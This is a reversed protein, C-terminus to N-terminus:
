DMVKDRLVFGAAELKARVEGATKADPHSYYRGEDGSVAGDSGTRDQRGTVVVLIAARANQKADQAM